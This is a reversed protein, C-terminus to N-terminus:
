ELTADSCAAKVKAGMFLVIAGMIPVFLPSSLMDDASKPLVFRAM